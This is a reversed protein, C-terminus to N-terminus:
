SGTVPLLATALMQHLQLWCATRGSRRFAAVGLVGGAIRDYHVLATFQGRSGGLNSQPHQQAWVESAAGCGSFKKAVQGEVLRLLVM